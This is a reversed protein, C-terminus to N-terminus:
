PMAEAVTFHTMVAFNVQRHVLASFDTSADELRDEKLHLQKIAGHIEPSEWLASEFAFHFVIMPNEQRVYAGYLCILPVEDKLAM